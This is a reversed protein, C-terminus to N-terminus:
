RLLCGGAGRGRLCGRHRSRQRLGPSRGVRPLRAARAPLHRTFKGLGTRSRNRSSPRTATTVPALEPRPAPNASASACAPASSSTRMAAASLRAGPVPTSTNIAALAPHVPEDLLPLGVEALDVTEIEFAGHAAALENFWRAVVPGVRGPRTSGIIVQLTPKSM